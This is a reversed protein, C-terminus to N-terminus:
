NMKKQYRYFSHSKHKNCKQNKTYSGKRTIEFITSLLLEIGTQLVSTMFFSKFGVHFGTNKFICCTPLLTCVGGGGGGVGGCVGFYARAMMSIM